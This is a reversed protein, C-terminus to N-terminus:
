LKKHIQWKKCLITKTKKPFSVFVVDNLVSIGDDQTQWM